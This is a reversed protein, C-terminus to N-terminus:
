RKSKGSTAKRTLAKKRVKYEAFLEKARDDHCVLRMNRVSPAHHRM